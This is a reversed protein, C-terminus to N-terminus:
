SRRARQGPRVVLDRHQADCSERRSSAPVGDAHLGAAGEGRSARARCTPSWPTGDRIASLLRPVGLRSSGNLEIPDVFDADVRRWLVDARKLGAITRVHVQGDHVVLDDGEVLLFGLYKALTSQEFYTASYPGPTMLCIRPQSREAMATLGNRFERFFPALRQVNMQTYTSPYARSIVLRNELAYGAGSPAQARDNLVWWRGDPGRGIDAAYLHMWRGGPPRTGVMPRLFEKSGAVVAAPIIGDAILFAEGYVDRLLAEFLSARQVISASIEAWEDEDILLPLGSLPWTREEAEGRM